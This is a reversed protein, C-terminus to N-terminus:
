IIWESARMPSDENVCWLQVIVKIKELLLFITNSHFCARSGKRRNGNHNYVTLQYICCLFCGVTAPLRPSTEM